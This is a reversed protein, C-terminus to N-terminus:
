EGEDRETPRKICKIRSICFSSSSARITHTHINSICKRHKTISMSSSSNNFYCVFFFKKFSLKQKRGGRSQQREVEEVEEIRRMM